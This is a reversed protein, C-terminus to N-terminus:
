VDKTLFFEKLLEDWSDPNLSKAMGSVPLGGDQMLYGLRYDIKSFLREGLSDVWNKAIHGPLLNKLNSKLNPSYVRLLWGQAYPNEAIKKPDEVVEQNTEVVEGDVPSLMKIEKGDVILSWGVEGQALNEGKKPLNIRDIRGVMKHAFDDIGVQALKEGLPLVWTHGQHYYFSEPTRFLGYIARKVRRETERSRLALYSFVVFIGLFVIVLIYEVAKTAFLDYYTFVEM